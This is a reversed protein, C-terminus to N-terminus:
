HFGLKMSRFIMFVLEAGPAHSGNRMHEEVLEHLEVRLIGVPQVPVSKNERIYIKSMAM